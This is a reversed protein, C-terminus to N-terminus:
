AKIIKDVRKLIAREYEVLLTKRVHEIHKIKANFKRILIATITIPAVAAIILLPYATPSGGLLRSDYAILISFFCAIGFIWSAFGFKLMRKAFVWQLDSIRRLEREIIALERKITAASKGGVRTKPLAIDLEHEMTTAGKKPTKEPM